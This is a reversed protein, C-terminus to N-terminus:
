KWLKCGIRESFKPEPFSVTFKWSASPEIWRSPAFFSIWSGTGGRGSRANPQQIVVVVVANGGKRWREYESKKYLPKQHLFVVSAAPPVQHSLMWKLRRQRRQKGKQLSRGGSTRFLSNCVGLGPTILSHWSSSDSTSCVFQLLQWHPFMLTM